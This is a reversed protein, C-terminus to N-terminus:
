NLEVETQKEEKLGTVFDVVAVLRRRQNNNLPFRFIELLEVIYITCKGLM